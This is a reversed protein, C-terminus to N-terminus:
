IHILSLSVLLFARFLVLGLHDTAFRDRTFGGWAILGLSVLFHSAYRMFALQFSGLGALLLWKVSTDVLSFMFYTILMMIIGLTPNEQNAKAILAM